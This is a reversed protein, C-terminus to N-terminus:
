PLRESFLIQRDKNSGEFMSPSKSAGYNEIKSKEYDDDHNSRILKIVSDRTPVKKMKPENDSDVVTTESLQPNYM